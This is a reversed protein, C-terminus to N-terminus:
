NYLKHTFYIMKAFLNFPMKIYIGRLIKDSQGFYSKSTNCIRSKLSLSTGFNQTCLYFHLFEVMLHM